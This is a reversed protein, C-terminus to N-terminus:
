GLNLPAGEPWKLISVLRGGETSEPKSARRVYWATFPAATAGHITVSALVVLGVSALLLESNGVDAQVALLVLLLSNLGRPGFWSVFANAEWSMRSRMLLLGLVSPRIVFIVLGATLLTVGIPVTGLISSLVAGFLVFALLMAMESTVEGYELFCDCLRQNLLM